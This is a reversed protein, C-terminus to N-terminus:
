GSYKELLIKVCEDVTHEGYFKWPTKYCMNYACSNGSKRLTDRVNRFTERQKTEYQERSGYDKGFKIYM